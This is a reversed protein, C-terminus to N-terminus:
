YSFNHNFLDLNSDEHLKSFNSAIFYFTIFNRNKEYKIMRICKIVSIIYIVDFCFFCQFYVIISKTELFPKKCKIIM